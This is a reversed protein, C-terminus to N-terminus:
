LPAILATLVWLHPLSPVVSPEGSQEGGVWLQCILFDCSQLLSLQQLFSLQGPANELGVPTKSLLFYGLITNLEQAEPATQYWVVVCGRRVRLVPKTTM